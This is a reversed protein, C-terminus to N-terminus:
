VQTVDAASSFLAINNREILVGRIVVAAVPRQTDTQMSTACIDDETQQVTVVTNRDWMITRRQFFTDANDKYLM